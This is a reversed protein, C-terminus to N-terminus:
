GASVTSRDELLTLVQMSPMMLGSTGECARVPWSLLVTRPSDSSSLAQGTGTVIAYRTVLGYILM